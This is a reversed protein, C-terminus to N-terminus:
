LLQFQTVDLCRSIRRVPIHAYSEHSFQLMGSTLQIFDLRPLCITCIYLYETFM